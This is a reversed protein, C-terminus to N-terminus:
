LFVVSDLIQFSIVGNAGISVIKGSDADKYELRRSTGWATQCSKKVNVFYYKDISNKTYKHEIKQNSYLSAVAGNKIHVVENPSSAVLVLNKDESADYLWVLDDNDGGFSVMKKKFLAM